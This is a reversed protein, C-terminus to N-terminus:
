RRSARASSAPGNDTTAASRPRTQRGLLQDLRLPQRLVVYCTSLAVLGSALTAIQVTSGALAALGPLLGVLVVNLAVALGWARTVPNGIRSHALQVLGALNKVVIAAGWGIAAGTAGLHPVLVLDLVVMVILATVNNAVLVASRGDMTLVTEVMGVGTAVLMAFTLVAVVSTGDIYSRGFVSLWQPALAVVTFLVPWLLTVLWTTTTCYIQHASGRDGSGLERALTPEGATAIAQQVFQCLAVFRTAATYLAAEAPGALAAVLVIDLRAFCVQIVTALGRPVVFRVFERREARDTPTPRVGRRLSPTVAYAALAAIVYPVAWAATLSLVSPDFAVAGTLILQLAPRGLKDILVTPEMAHQSRSVALVTDLIAAAPLCVALVCITAAADPGAHSFRGLAPSCAAALIAVVISAALVPRVALRSIRAELAADRREHRSIFLVVGTPTGSRLVAAVILFASTLAFVRGADAPSLIQATVVVLLLTSVSTAAAGALNVLSSRRLSVTGGHTM